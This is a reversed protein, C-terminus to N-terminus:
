AAFLEKLISKNLPYFVKLLAKFNLWFSRIKAARNSLSFPTSFCREKLYILLCHPPSYLKNVAKSFAGSVVLIFKASDFFPKGKCGWDFRPLFVLTRVM